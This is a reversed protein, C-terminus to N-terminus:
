LLTSSYRTGNCGGVSLNAKALQFAALAAEPGDPVATSNGASTNGAALAVYLDAISVLSGGVSVLTVL